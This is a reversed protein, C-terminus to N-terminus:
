YGVAGITGVATRSRWQSTVTGTAVNTQHTVLYNSYFTSGNAACRLYGKLPQPQPSRGSTDDRLGMWAFIAPNANLRSTWNVGSYSSMSPGCFETAVFSRDAPDTRQVVKSAFPCHVDGSIIVPNFGNHQDLRARLAGTIREREVPYANWNARGAPVPQGDSGIAAWYTSLPSTTGIVTWTSTSNQITSITRSVQAAGLMTPNTATDPDTRDQRCDWLVLNLHRGWQLSSKEISMRKKDSGTPAVPAPGRVPMNEWYAQLGWNLQNLATDGASGTGYNNPIEAGNFDNAVEHDDIVSYTPYSRRCRQLAARSLYWGWRQRYDALSACYRPPVTNVHGERYINDGLQVMFDVPNDQLHDYGHWYSTGNNAATDTAASQCSIVAFNVQVDATASPATRTSGIWTRYSTDPISFVYWYQTGPQLPGGGTATKVDVHVSWHQDSRAIVTGSYLTNVNDRVDEYTRALRWGVNIQSPQGTMGADAATPNPALRTWLVVSDTTPDGTASGLQFPDSTFAAHATQTQFETGVVTAALGTGSLAVFRRRNLPITADNGM